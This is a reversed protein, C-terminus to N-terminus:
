VIKTEEVLLINGSIVDVVTVHTGTVLKKNSASRADLLRMSGQVAVNVQGDGNAPITLYVVGQQGVANTVDLTGDSQLGLLGAFLLGLLWVSILGAVIGAGLTIVVPMGSNLVALGILGFMMFFATLGQLSLLRFGSWAGHPDVDADLDADFDGDVEFDVGDLGDGVDGIGGILLMLTRVIFLTGGTITAAWYVWEIWTLEQM